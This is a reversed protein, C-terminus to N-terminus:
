GHATRTTVTDKRKKRDKKRSFADETCYNRIFNTCLDVTFLHKRTM